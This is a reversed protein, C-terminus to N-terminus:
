VSCSSDSAFSAAKVFITLKTSYAGWIHGFKTRTRVTRRLSIVFLMVFVDVCLVPVYIPIKFLLVLFPFPIYDIIYYQMIIVWPNHPILPTDMINLM